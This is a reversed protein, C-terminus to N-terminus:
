PGTSKVNDSADKKEIKKKQMNNHIEQIKM